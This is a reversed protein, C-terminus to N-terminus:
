TFRSHDKKIVRSDCILSPDNYMLRRKRTREPDPLTPNSIKEVEPIPVKRVHVGKAATSMTYVKSSPPIEFFQSSINYNEQSVHPFLPQNINSCDSDEEPIGGRNLGASTPWGWRVGGEPEIVQVVPRKEGLSESRTVASSSFDCRRVQACVSQSSM